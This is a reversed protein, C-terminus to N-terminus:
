RKNTKSTRFRIFFPLLLFATVALVSNIIYVTIVTTHPFVNFAIIDAFTCVALLILLLIWIGSRSVSFNKKCHYCTDQRKFVARRVEGYRYVTNCHPCTPLRFM